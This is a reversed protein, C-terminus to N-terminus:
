VFVNLSVFLTERGHLTFACGGASAERGIKVPSRSDTEIEAHVSRAWFSAALFSARKLEESRTKLVVDRRTQIAANFDQTVLEMCENGSTSSVIALTGSIRARQAVVSEDDDRRRLMKERRDVKKKKVVDCARRRGAAPSIRTKERKKSDFGAVDPRWFGRSAHRYRKKKVNSFSRAKFADAIFRSSASSYV